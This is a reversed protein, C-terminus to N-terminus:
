KKRRYLTVNDYYADAWGMSAGFALTDLSKLDLRPAKKGFGVQGFSSWPLAYFKWESSLQVITMWGDQCRDDRTPPPLDTKPDWCYEGAEDASPFTYPTCPKSDFDQDLYTGPSTCASPGCRPYIQDLETDISIPLQPLVGGPVQAPDFCRYVPNASTPDDPACPSGSLCRSHCERIRRCYQQNERALRSSTYKDTLIVLTQGSGEPGRRAWFAIGDYGSADFFDHSQKYGNAYDDTSTAMTPLGASDVTAGKALPAPCFDAEPPCSDYPTARYKGVPDTFAHSIGGGWKRFLGGKFHLVWDNPTGDCSPGPMQVAPLGWASYITGKLGPYWTADGPTHWSDKTLDDYSAWGGAIGTENPDAGMRTLEFDDFWGKSFEYQGVTACETPPTTLDAIGLGIDPYEPLMPFVVHADADVEPLVGNQWPVRTVVNPELPSRGSNGPGDCAALALAAVALGVATRPPRCPM